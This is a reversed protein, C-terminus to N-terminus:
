ESIKKDGVGWLNVRNETEDQLQELVEAENMMDTPIYQQIQKTEKFQCPFYKIIKAHLNCQIM